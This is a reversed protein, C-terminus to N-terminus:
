AMATKFLSGGLGLLDRWLSAENAEAASEANAMNTYANEGAQGLKAKLGARNQGEQMRYDGIQSGTQGAIGANGLGFRWALDGLQTGSDQAVGAKLQGLRSYLDALRANGTDLGQAGQTYLNFFPEHAGLYKYYDQSALGQGYQMADIALKGYQGTPALARQAAQQAQEMQWQAAPSLGYSGPNNLYNWYSDVGQEGRDYVGQWPEMGAGTAEIAKGFNADLYGLGETKAGGIDERAIPYAKALYDLAQDSGSQVAGVAEDTKRDLLDDGKGLEKRQSSLGQRLYRREAGSDTAGGFLGDFLGM